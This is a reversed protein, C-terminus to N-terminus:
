QKTSPELEQERQTIQIDILKEIVEQISIGKEACIAKFRRHKSPALRIILQQRDENM